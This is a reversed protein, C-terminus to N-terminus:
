GRDQSSWYQAQMYAWLLLQLKITGQGVGDVNETVRELHVENKKALLLHEARRAGLGM